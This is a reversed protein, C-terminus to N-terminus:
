SGVIASVESLQVAGDGNSDSWELLILRYDESWSSFTSSLYALAAETGYRTVGFVLLTDRHQYPDRAAVIVAYDRVGYDASTVEYMSGAVELSAKFPERSYRFRVARVAPMLSAAAKNVIPGGVIAAELYARAKSYEVTNETFTGMYRLWLEEDVASGYIVQVDRYQMYAHIFGYVGPQLQLSCPLRGSAEGEVKDYELRTINEQAAGYDPLVYTLKLYRGLRAQDLGAEGHEVVLATLYVLSFPIEGVRASLAETVSGFFGNTPDAVVWGYPPIYAECWAHASAIELGGVKGCVIGIVLRAPIGRARCLTIFLDAKDLCVGRGRRYTELAGRTENRLIVGRDYEIEKYCYNLIAKVAQYTNDSPALKMALEKLEQSEVQWYKDARCYRRRLSEPIKSIPEALSPDIGQKFERITALLKVEIRYEGEESRLKSADLVLLLNEERTLAALKPEVLGSPGRLELVDVQQYPHQSWWGEKYVRNYPTWMCIESVDGRAKVEITMRVEITYARQTLQTSLAVPVCVALLMAAALLSRHQLM